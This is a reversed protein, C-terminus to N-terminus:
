EDVIQHKREILKTEIRAALTTPVWLGPRRDSSPGPLGSPEGPKGTIVLGCEDVAAGFDELLGPVFDSRYAVGPVGQSEESRRYLVTM